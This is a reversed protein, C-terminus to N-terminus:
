IICLLGAMSFMRVKTAIKDRFACCSKGFHPPPPPLPRKSSKRFNMLKPSVMRGKNDFYDLKQIPQFLAKILVLKTWERSQVRYETTM